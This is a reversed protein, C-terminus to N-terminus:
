FDGAKKVRIKKLFHQNWGKLCVTCHGALTSKKDHKLGNHVEVIMGMRCYGGESNDRFSNRHAVFLLKRSWRGNKTALSLKEMNNNVFSCPSLINLWGYFKNMQYSQRTMETLIIWLLLWPSSFFFCLLWIIKPPALSKKPFGFILRFFYYEM